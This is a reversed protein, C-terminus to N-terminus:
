QQKQGNMASIQGMLWSMQEESKMMAQDLAAFKKIYMEEKKTIRQNFIEIRDSIDKLSQDLSKNKNKIIGNDKDSIYNEIKNNVRDVFGTNETIFFNTIKESDKDFEKMFKESDFELKGSRDNSTTIGLQSLSGGGAFGGVMRQLENQLTKLTSEGALTGRGTTVYAGDANREKSVVGPASQEQLFSLTSNYQDVFDKVAKTLRERDPEVTITEEGTKNLTINLGLVADKITNTESEMAVGNITFRAKDGATSIFEDKGDTFVVGAKLGLGDRVNEDTGVLDIERGTKSDTLVLRSDIVTASVGTDKTKANINKTIERFNDTDKIDITFKEADEEKGNYNLVLKGSVGLAKDAGADMGEVQVKTGQVRAYSALNKVDVHYVGAVADSGASASIIKKDGLLKAGMSNFVAPNKLDKIRDFLSKLRTNVDKWADKQAGVAKQQVQIRQLPLKEIQMLKDITSQDIGSFSGLTNIGAM